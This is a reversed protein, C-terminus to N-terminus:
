HSARRDPLAKCVQLESQDWSAKYERLGQRASRGRPVPRELQAPIARRVRQVWRVRLVLRGPQARIAKRVPLAPTAQRSWSCGCCGSSGGARDSRNRGYAKRVPAGTDGKQGTAGVTGQPGVPGIPGTAGTDGKSGTAGVGGQPGVPGIPGVPGQAGVAGITVYFYGLKGSETESQGNKKTPSLVLLSVGPAAPTTCTVRISTASPTPTPAVACVGTSIGIIPPVTTSDDSGGFLNVGDVTLTTSSGSRQERRHRHNGTYPRRRLCNRRWTCLLDLRRASM